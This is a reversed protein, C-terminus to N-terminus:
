SAEQAETSSPTQPSPSPRRSRTRSASRQRHEPDGRRPNRAIPGRDNEAVVFTVSDSVAFREHSDGLLMFLRQNIGSSDNVELFGFGRSGVRVVKGTLTSGLAVVCAAVRNKGPILSPRPVFFTRSGPELPAGGVIYRRDVYFSEGQNSLILGQGRERSWRRVTGILREPAGGNPPPAAAAEQIEIAPPTPSDLGHLQTDWFIERYEVEEVCLPLKVQSAPGEYEDATRRPTQNEGARSSFGGNRLLALTPRDVVVARRAAAEAMGLSRDVVAGLDQADAGPLDVRAIEGSAIGASVPLAPRDDEPAESLAEQVHIAANVAAVAEDEGFVVRAGSPLCRVSERAGCDTSELVVDLFRGILAIWSAESDKQKTSALDKLVLTLVVRHVKSEPSTLKHALNMM